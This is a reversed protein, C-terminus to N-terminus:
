IENFTTMCYKYNILFTRIEETNQRGHRKVLMALNQLLNQM